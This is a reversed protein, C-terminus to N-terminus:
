VFDKEVMKEGIKNLDKKRHKNFRVVIENGYKSGKEM